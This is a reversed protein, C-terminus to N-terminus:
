GAILGRFVTKRHHSLNKILPRFRHDAPMLLHTGHYDSLPRQNPAEEFYHEGAVVVQYEDTLTWLGADFLWHANKSLALGNQVDDDRSDAFRHIHAADVLSGAAVTVLRQRTLACTYDYAAVISTRFRASRGKAVEAAPEYGATQVLELDDPVALGASAFLAIREQLPFYTAILLRRADDRYTPDRAFNVFGPDLRAAVTLKRDPSPQGASTLPQWIGDSGLHHFPLRIDPPQKRRGAVAVWYETLRFTLEGTLLLIDNALQGAEALDFVVLLLLPKHPAPNGTSRDVRLGALVSRWHNPLSM